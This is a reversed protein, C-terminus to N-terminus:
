RCLSFYLLRALMTVFNVQNVEKNLSNLTTAVLSGITIPKGQQSVFEFYFVQFIRSFM